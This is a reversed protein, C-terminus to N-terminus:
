FRAEKKKRLKVTSLKMNKSITTHHIKLRIEERLDFVNSFQLFELNLVQLLVNFSGFFFM